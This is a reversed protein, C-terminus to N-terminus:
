FKITEKKGLVSRESLCHLNIVSIKSFPVFTSSSCDLKTIIRRTTDIECITVEWLFPYKLQKVSRLVCCIIWGRHFLSRKFFVIHKSYLNVRVM